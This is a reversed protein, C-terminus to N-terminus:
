QRVQGPVKGPKIKAAADEQARVVLQPTPAEEHSVYAAHANVTVRNLGRNGNRELSGLHVGIKFANL